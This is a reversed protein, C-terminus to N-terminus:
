PKNSHHHVDLDGVLGSLEEFALAARHRDVEDARGTSALDGLHRDVGIHLALVGSAVALQAVLAELDQDARRQDTHGIRHAHDRLSAQRLREGDLEAAVACPNRDVLRALDLTWTRSIKESQRRPDDVRAHRVFRDVPDAVLQGFQGFTERDDFTEAMRHHEVGAITQDSEIRGMGTGTTVHDGGDTPPAVRRDGMQHVGVTVGVMDAAARVEGCRETLHGHDPVSVDLCPEVAM